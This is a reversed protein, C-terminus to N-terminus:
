ELLVCALMVFVITKPQKSCIVTNISWRIKGFLDLKQFGLVYDNAHRMAETYVRFVRATMPSPLEITNIIDQPEEPFSVNLITVFSDPSTENSVQIAYEKQYHQTPEQITFGTITVLNSLFDIQYWNTNDKPESLYFHDKGPEYYGIPATLSSSSRLTSSSISVLKSGNVNPLNTKKSMWRLMGDTSKNRLPISVWRLTM